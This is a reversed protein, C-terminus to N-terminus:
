PKRCVHAPTLNQIEVYEDGKVSYKKVIADEIDQVSVPQSFDLSLLRGLGRPCTQRNLFTKDKISVNIIASSYNINLSAILGFM